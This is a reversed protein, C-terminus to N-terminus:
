YFNLKSPDYDIAISYKVEKNGSDLSVSNLKVATFLEELGLSSSASAGSKGLLSNIFDAVSIYSTAYGSLSISKNRVDFQNITVGAPTRLVFERLLVSYHIRNKFLEELVSYKKDLNRADIEVQKKANIKSRHDEIEDNVQGLKTQYKRAEFFLYASVGAVIVLLVISFVTSAKVIATKQQEQKEQQPILNISQSM